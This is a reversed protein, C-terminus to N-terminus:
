YRITRTGFIFTKLLDEWGDMKPVFIKIRRIIIQCLIIKQFWGELKVNKEIYIKIKKKEQNVNEENGLNQFYFETFVM